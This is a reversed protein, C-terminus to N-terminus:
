TNALPVRLSRRQLMELMENLQKGVTVADSGVGQYLPSVPTNGM